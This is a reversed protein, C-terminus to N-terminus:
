ERPPKSRGSLKYSQQRAPLIDIPSVCMETSATSLWVSKHQRRTLPLSGQVTLLSLGAIIPYQKSNGCCHWFTMSSWQQGPHLQPHLGMLPTSSSCPLRSSPLFVSVPSKPSPKCVKVRQERYTLRVSVKLPTQSLQLRLAPFQSWQWLAVCHSQPVRCTM